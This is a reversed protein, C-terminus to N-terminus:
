VSTQTPFLMPFVFIMLEYSILLAFVSNLKDVHLYTNVRNGESMDVMCGVKQAGEWNKKSQKQRGGM